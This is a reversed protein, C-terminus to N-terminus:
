GCTGNIHDVEVAGISEPHVAGTIPPVTDGHVDDIGGEFHAAASVGGLGDICEDVLIGSLEEGLGRVEIEGGSGYGHLEEVAEVQGVTGIDVPAFGPVFDEAVEIGVDEGDALLDAGIVGVGDAEAESGGCGGFEGLGALEVGEL